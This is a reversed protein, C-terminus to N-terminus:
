QARVLYVDWAWRAVQAYKAGEVKARYRFQNGFQDTRESLKYDLSISDIGLDTLGFVESPESIGNHNIDQWLWLKPFIADRKDINGDGNGNNSPKDYEALALFGNPQQGGPPQPQPTFNGFLEAGDDIRANGNRDLALWADDSSATTWARQEAIGDDSLDFNVGLEASTLVFGDGAV